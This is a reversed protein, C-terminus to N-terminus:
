RTYVGIQAALNVPARDSESGEADPLAIALAQKEIIPYRAMDVVGKPLELFSQLASLTIIAQYWRQPIDLTNSIAGVDEIHRHTWLTMLNFTNNPVQWLEVAPTLQKDLWYQRPVGPSRKNPFTAWDDRNFQTIDVDYWAASLSVEAFNIIAGGTERIRFYRSAIGTPEIAYWQWGIAAYDVAGPAQVTTWAIGDNSIEFLLNYTRAVASLIGVLAIQQTNGSGWDFILNGDPSVQTCDTEVNADSLNAVTGGASSVVATPTLRTPTRYIARLVDIDGDNMVYRQQGPYLAYLPKYVRWLNIGRASMDTLVYYLGKKIIDIVEPVLQSPMGGVRRIVSDLIDAVRIVTQGTTGSTAM